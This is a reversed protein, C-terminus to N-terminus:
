DDESPWSQLAENFSDRNERLQKLESYLQAGVDTTHKGRNCSTWHGDETCADMPCDCGISELQERMEIASAEAAEAREIAAREAVAATEARGWQDVARRAQDEYDKGLKEALAEAVEARKEAAFLKKETELYIQRWEMSQAAKELESMVKGKYAVLVYSYAM